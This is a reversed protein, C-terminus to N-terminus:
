PFYGGIVKGFETKAIVLINTNSSANGFKYAEFNHNSAEYVLYM